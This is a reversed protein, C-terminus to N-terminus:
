SGEEYKVNNEGNPELSCVNEEVPSPSSKTFPSPEVQTKIPENAWDIFFHNM